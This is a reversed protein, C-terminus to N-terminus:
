SNDYSMRFLRQARELDQQSKITIELDGVGWHGISTLDRTFGEELDVEDPNIRVGIVLKHAQPKVEVTAFNKLRKFAFYNKTDKIQVDDGFEMLMVKLSEYLDKLETSSDVLFQQVTKYKSRNSGANSIISVNSINESNAVSINVHELLLLEKGFRKYRVLDINANMQHVAHEDYRTFDSAICILRPSDWSIEQSAAQGLTKLVLLEFEGKHDQLWNLYFLGQNIVNMNIAKKYEIVVPCNNEDIGLTDIRGRHNRGTYYETALFRVGLFEMSNQEILNQLSKELSVSDGKIEMVQNNVTKFLKFSSM